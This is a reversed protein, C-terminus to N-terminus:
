TILLCFFMNKNVDQFGSFFLAADTDFHWTDPVSVMHSVTVFGGWGGEAEMVRRNKKQRKAREKGDIEGLPAM